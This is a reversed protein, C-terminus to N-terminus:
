LSSGFYPGADMVRWVADMSHSSKQGSVTNMSTVPLMAADLAVQRSLVPFM